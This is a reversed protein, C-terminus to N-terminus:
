MWVFCCTSSYNKINLYKLVQPLSQFVSPELSFQIYCSFGANLKSEIEKHVFNQNTVTMGLLYGYKLATRM